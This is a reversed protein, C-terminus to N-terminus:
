DLLGVMGQNEKAKWPNQYLEWSHDSKNLPDDKGRWELGTVGAKEAKERYFEIEEEQMRLPLVPTGDSLVANREKVRELIHRGFEDEIFEEWTM